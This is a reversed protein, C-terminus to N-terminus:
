KTYKTITLVNEDGIRQYDVVDMIGMLIHIGYGGCSDENKDSLHQIGRHDAPANELPNFYVGRDKLIIKIGPPVSEGCSLEIHGNGVQEYGYSIINVIAEEAALIVQHTMPHSIKHSKCYAKLFDLMAHLYELKALFVKTEM